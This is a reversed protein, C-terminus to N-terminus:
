GGPIAPAPPPSSDTQSNPGDEPSFIERRSPFPRSGSAIDGASSASCGFVTRITPPLVPPAAPPAFRTTSRPPPSSRPWAPHSEPVSTALLGLVLPPTGSSNSHVSRLRRRTRLASKELLSQNRM